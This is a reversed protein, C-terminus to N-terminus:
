RHWTGCGTDMALTRATSGPPASRRAQRATCSRTTAAEPEDNLDGAVILARHQGDGALLNSAFARIAAAEATRRNLAYVAFRAREGEDRPSFRGGPFTLLKSKLHCSIVDLTTGGASEVRVRLAPRGMESMMTGTDDVQIPRM